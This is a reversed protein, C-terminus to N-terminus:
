NKIETQNTLYDRIVLALVRKASKLLFNIPESVYQSLIDVSAHIEPRTRTSLLIMSGIISQYEENFIIYEYSHAKADNVIIRANTHSSYKGKWRLNVFYGM